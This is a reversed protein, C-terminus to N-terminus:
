SRRQHYATTVSNVLGKDTYLRLARALHLPDDGFEADGRQSIPFLRDAPDQLFIGAELFFSDKLALPALAYVGEDVLLILVTGDDFAVFELGEDNSALRQGCSEYSQIKDGVFDRVELVRVLREGDTKFALDQKAVALGRRSRISADGIWRGDLGFLDTRRRTATAAGRREDLVAVSKLGAWDYNTLIRIRESDSIAFSCEAAFRFTRNKFHFINYDATFSGDIDVSIDRGQREEVFDNWEVIEKFRPPKIDEFRTTYHSSWCPPSRRVRRLVPDVEVSRAVGRWLGANFGKFKSWSEDDLGM